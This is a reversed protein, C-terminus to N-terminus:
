YNEVSQTSPDYTLEQDWKDQIWHRLAKQVEKSFKLVDELKNDNKTKIINFVLQTFNYNDMNEFVEFWNETTDGPGFYLVIAEDMIQDPVIDWDVQGQFMYYKISDELSNEKRVYESHRNYSEWDGTIEKVLGM